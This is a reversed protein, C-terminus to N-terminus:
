NGAHHKKEDDIYEVNNDQCWEIAVQKYENDRYVFWADQIGFQYLHEKFRRFAGSGNISISLTEAINDDTVIGIFDQMMRYGDIDFNDPLSIYDKNSDYYEIDFEEDEGSICDESVFVVAGSKINLFVFNESNRFELGMLIESLKVKM